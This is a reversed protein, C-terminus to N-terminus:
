VMLFFRMPNSILLESKLDYLLTCGEQLFGAQVFANNYLFPNVYNNLVHTLVQNVHKNM